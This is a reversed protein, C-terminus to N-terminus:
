CHPRADWRVSVEPVGWQWRLLGSLGDREGVRAVGQRVTGAADTVTIQYERASRKTSGEIPAFGTLRMGQNSVWRHVADLDQRCMSYVMGLSLVVMFAGVVAWELIM